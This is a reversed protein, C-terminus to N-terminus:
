RHAIMDRGTPQNHYVCTQQSALEATRRM